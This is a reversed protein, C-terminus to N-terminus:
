RRAEDAIPEARGRLLAGPNRELYDALRAVASSAEAVRLLAKSADDGLYQQAAIFRKAMVSTAAFEDLTARMDVLTAQLETATPGANKELEGLVRDLRASSSSLQALLAKTEPSEALERLARGAGAWERAISALDATQVQERAAVILGDV